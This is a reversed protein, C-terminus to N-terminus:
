NHNRIKPDNDEIDNVMEILNSGVGSADVVDVFCVQLGLGMHVPNHM